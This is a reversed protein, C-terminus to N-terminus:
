CKEELRKILEPTLNHIVSDDYTVWPRSSASSCYNLQNQTHFILAETTLKQPIKDGVYSNFRLNKLRDVTVSRDELDTLHITEENEYLFLLNYEEQKQEETKKPIGFVM